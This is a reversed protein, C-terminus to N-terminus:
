EALLSLLRQENVEPRREAIRTAVLKGVIWLSVGKSIYDEAYRMLEPVILLFTFVTLGLVFPWALQRLVYRDIIRM